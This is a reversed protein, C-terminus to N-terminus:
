PTDSPDTDTAAEFGPLRHGAATARTVHLDNAFGYWAPAAAHGRARVPIGDVLRLLPLSDAFPADPRSVNSLEDGATM